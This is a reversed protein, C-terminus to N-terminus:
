HGDFSVSGPCVFILLVDMAENIGKLFNEDEKSSKENYIHWVTKKAPDSNLDKEVAEDFETKEKQLVGALPM